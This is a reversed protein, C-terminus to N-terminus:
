WLKRLMTRLGCKYSSAFSARVVIRLGCNSYCGECAPTQVCSTVCRRGCSCVMSSPTAHPIRLTPERHLQQVVPVEAQAVGVQHLHCARSPQYLPRLERREAHDNHERRQSTSRQSRDALGPAAVMLFVHPLEQAPPGQAARHFSPLEPVEGRGGGAGGIAQLSQLYEVVIIQIHRLVHAAYVDAWPIGALGQHQGLFHPLRDHFTNALLWMCKDLPNTNGPGQFLTHVLVAYCHLILSVQNLDRPVKVKEKGRIERIDALSASATGQDLQNAVVADDRTRHHDHQTTYVVLFPQCGATLNNGAFNLSTVMQKLGTTIVPCYLDTTLGRETCVRSVEQHLISQQKCKTGRALRGWIPALEEVTAVQCFQLLVPYTERYAEMVGKPERAGRVGAEAVNAALQQVAMMMLNGNGGQLRGGPRQYHPLDGYVKTAVLKCAAAPLLLLPFSMAIAPIAALDGAGGRATCAIRLWSLADGYAELIGDTAFVGALEQYAMAASVNDRHILTQPM